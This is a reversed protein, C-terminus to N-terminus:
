LPEEESIGVLEVLADADIDLECAPVGVCVGDWVVDAVGGEVGDVVMEGVPDCDPM